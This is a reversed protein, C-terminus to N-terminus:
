GPNQGVLTGFARSQQLDRGFSAGGVSVDLSQFVFPMGKGM